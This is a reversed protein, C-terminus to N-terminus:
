NACPRKLFSLEYNIEIDGWKRYKRTIECDHHECSIVLEKSSNWRLSVTEHKCSGAFVSNYSNPRHWIKYAPIIEIWDGYPVLHSEDASEYHIAHYKGDESRVEQVKFVFLMPTFYILLLLCIFVWTYWKQLIKTIIYVYLTSNMKM